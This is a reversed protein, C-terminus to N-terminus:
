DQAEKAADLAVIIENRDYARQIYTTIDEVNLSELLKAITYIIDASQQIVGALRKEYIIVDKGEYLLPPQIKAHATEFEPWALADLRAAEKLIQNVLEKPEVHDQYPTISGIEIM